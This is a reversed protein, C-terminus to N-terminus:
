FTRQFVVEFSVHFLSNANTDSGCAENTGFDPTIGTAVESTAGQIEVTYTGKFMAFDIHGPELQGQLNMKTETKTVVHGDPGPAWQVKIPVGNIGQGSADQVQIFIHHKGRNECPTLQRQTVLRFDVNPTATPEPTPTETPPRPTNTVLPRPTNTATPTFRPTPTETPTPTMTPTATATPIPTRTSTPTQTPTNTPTPTRTPTPTATEVFPLVAMAGLAGDEQVQRVISREDGPMAGNDEFSAALVRILAFPMMIGCMWIVFLIFIVIRFRAGWTRKAFWVAFGGGQRDLRRQSQTRTSKSETRKKPASTPPPLAQQSQHTKTRVPKSVPAVAKSAPKPQAQHHPKSETREQKQKQAPTLPRSPTRQQPAKAAPSPDRQIPPMAQTNESHTPPRSMPPRIAAPRSPAGGPVNPPISRAAPPYPSAQPPIAPRVPPVPPRSVPVPPMPRSPHGPAGGLPRVPVPPMPGTQRVPSIVQSPGSPQSSSAPLASTGTNRLRGMTEELRQSLVRSFTIALSPYKNLFDEFDAKTLALVDTDVVAYATTPHGKGSLLAIEGFFDGQTLTELFVAGQSTTAWHEVEGTDIFYMEDGPRGEYYINSGAQYRRPRLRDALEDLQTRTLGGLQAIKQLYPSPAYGSSSDLQDRLTRSLSVSLQPYKVLLGDFDTRYFVWLNTDTTAYATISRTKGTLLASEGFYDGNSFHAIAQGPTDDSIADVMGTDVIYMSDGPDGQGYIVEGAPVHRLLLLRAIDLIAETPVEAFLPMRTLIEVAQRQDALTLSARINRSLSAKVTPHTETLSTFDTPSLMWAITNTAPQATKSHPKGAIVAMEGFAEGYGVEAYDEDTDGILRVTGAAIFFIGVPSDGSRYIATGANYRTPSLYQVVLNRERDSLTRLLPNQALDHALHPRYQVIGAGFALGLSVGLMPNQDILALLDMNDLAWVSVDGSARALMAHARGMFFDAEGVLSGPGLNAVVPSRDDTSLKVWGEKILYLVDSDGGAVFLTENPRYQEPRLHKSILRQEDASLEAFLPIQKIFEEKM